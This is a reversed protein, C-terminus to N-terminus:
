EKMISVEFEPKSKFISPVFLNEIKGYLILVKPYNAKRHSIKDNVFIITIGKNNFLFNRYNEPKPATIEKIDAESINSLDSNNKLQEKLDALAADSIVPLYNSSPKFLNELHVEKGSNLDYNLTMINYLPKNLPPWTSKDISITFKISLWNNTVVTLFESSVVQNDKKYNKIWTEAKTKLDNNINNQVEQNTLGDIVPYKFDIVYTNDKVKNNVEHIIKTDFKLNKTDLKSANQKQLHEGLNDDECAQGRSPPSKPKEHIDPVKANLKQTHDKKESIQKKQINTTGCSLLLPCCSLLIIIFLQNKM